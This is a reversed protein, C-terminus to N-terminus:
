SSARVLQRLWSRGTFPTSVVHNGFSEILACGRPRKASKPASVFVSRLERERLPPINLTNWETLYSWALGTELALDNLMFIALNCAANNRGDGEARNGLKAIYARVRRDTDATAPVDPMVFAAPRPEVMMRRLADAAGPPLEAVDSLRGGWEYRRGSKHMSPPLMVYGADCRVDLNAGLGSVNGIEGAINPRKFYRHHGGDERGTRCILTPADLIGLAKASEEGIPGDVDLAIMGCLGPVTAINADPWRQWWGALATEDVTASKFGGSLRPHKGAKACPTNGCTCSGDANIGHTPFVPWGALAYRRAADALSITVCGGKPTRCEPALRDRGM